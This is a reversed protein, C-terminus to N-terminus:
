EVITVTIDGSVTRANVRCSDASDAPTWERPLRIRGSRTDAHIDCKGARNPLRVDIDGSIANLQMAPALCRSLDIDGSATDVALRDGCDFEDIRVDGSASKAFVSAAGGRDIEIDGSATSLSMEACRADRVDIDGSLSRLKVDGACAFGRLKVDGSHSNLNASGGIELGDATLDGSASSCNLAGELGAALTVTVTGLNRTGLDLLGLLGRKAEPTSEVIELADGNMRWEFRSPDSFQLQAAAGNDLAARRLTVDAHRVRVDLSRLADVVEGSRPRAAEAASTGVPASAGSEVSVGDAPLLERMLDDPSRLAAVAEEEDIGDEVCDDIIENYYEELREREERPLAAIRERLAEMFEHRTM